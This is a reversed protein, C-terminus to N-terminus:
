NAPVCRYQRAPNAEHLGAIAKTCEDYDDVYGFILGTREWEGSLNNMEIWHDNAHGIQHGEVYRELGDYGPPNDSASCSVLLMPLAAASM